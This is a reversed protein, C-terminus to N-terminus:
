PDLVVAPAAYVADAAALAAQGANLSRRLEEARIGVERVTNWDQRAVAARAQTLVTHLQERITLAAEYQAESVLPALLEAARRLYIDRYLTDGDAAVVLRNIVALVPGQEGQPQAATMM